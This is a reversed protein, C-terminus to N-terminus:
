QTVTFTGSIDGVGSGALGTFTGGGESTFYLDFGMDVLTSFLVPWLSGKYPRQEWLYADVTGSAGFWEYTGTGQDDFVVSLPACVVGEPRVRFVGSVVRVPRDSGLWALLAVVGAQGRDTFPHELEFRERDNEYWQAM